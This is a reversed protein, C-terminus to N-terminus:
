WAQDIALGAAKWEPFGDVLRRANLGQKRLQTVLEYACV